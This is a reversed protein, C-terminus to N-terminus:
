EIHLMEWDISAHPVTETKKKKKKKTKKTKQLVFDEHKTWVFM